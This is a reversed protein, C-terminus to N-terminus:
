QSRSPPQRDNPASNPLGMQARLEQWQQTVHPDHSLEVARRLSEEAKPLNNLQVFCEGLGAWAYWEQPYDQTVTEFVPMAESCQGDDALLLARQVHANALNQAVPANHPALQHAVTFVTLDDKWQKEQSVVLVAFVLTLLGGAYLLPVRLKGALHWGTAMLLMLGALPLYTYRGHLFDGPNLANLNLTLLIPLVLLLTGMLLAREVNAADQHPLNRRAKRWAWFLGGSLIAAACGVGLGPLLVGDFSFREALAPDAFARSRVPWLLVKVYFWLTAPWSRLVTSWPLHQTLSGFRGGLANFRMLLYFVTVCFYPFTQRFARVLRSELGLDEGDGRMKLLAMALIVAPLVIATEKALMAAFCCLASAIVWVTSSQNTKKTRTAKLSKKGAQGDSSGFEWRIYLFLAGLVGLSMLPDPVTVWAVSETQAPHLAFWSAAVLAAARDRLLQWVLLGLLVAVAAHKTISLLHWGWPSMASLIFNIRLWLIFLPRYFSSPGGTFQAWVYNAFYGWVHGASQIRPDRTFHHDDLVFQFELTPSYVAFTFALLCMALIFFVRPSILEPVEALSTKIAGKQRRTHVNM